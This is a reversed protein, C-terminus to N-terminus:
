PSSDKIENRIRKVEDIVQSISEKGALATFLSEINKEPTESLALTRVYAGMFCTSVELPRYGEEILAILLDTMKERVARMKDHKKALDM